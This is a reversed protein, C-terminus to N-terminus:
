GRLGESAKKLVINLLRGTEMRMKVGEIWDAGNAKSEEPLGSWEDVVGALDGSALKADIRSVIAQATTGSIPTSSRVKILSKASTMLKDFVGANEDGATAPVLQIALSKFRSQLTQLDPVNGSAALEKLRSTEESPGTLTEISVLANMYPTNQEISTQLASVAVSRAIKESVKANDAIKAMDEIKGLLESSFQSELKGIRDSIVSTQKGVDGLTKELANLKALAEGNDSGQGAIVMDAKLESFQAALQELQTRNARSKAGLDNIRGATEEDVGAGAVAAGKQELAAIKGEITSLDVTGASKLQEQASDLRATLAAIESKLSAVADLDALNSLDAKEGDAKAFLSGVLPLGDANNMQGIAGLGGITVAGGLIASLVMGSFSGSKKETAPKGSGAKTAEAEAKAKTSKTASPKPAAKTDPIGSSPKADSASSPKKNAELDITKAARTGRRAPSAPKKRNNNSTAM